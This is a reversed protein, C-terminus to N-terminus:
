PAWETSLFWKVCHHDTNVNVYLTLINICIKKKKPQNTKIRFFLLLITMDIVSSWMCFHMGASVKRGAGSKQTISGIRIRSRPMRKKAELIPRRKSFHGAFLQPALFGLALWRHLILHAHFRLTPSKRNWSQKSRDLSLVSVRYWMVGTAGNFHM